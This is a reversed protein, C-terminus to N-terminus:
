NNNNRDNNDHAWENDKDLLAMALCYGHGFPHKPDNLMINISRENVMMTSNEIFDDSVGYKKKYYPLSEQHPGDVEIVLLNEGEHLRRKLEQFQREQKVLQCYVPVYIAKRGEIYNLMRDYHFPEDNDLPNATDYVAGICTGVKAKGVPYRVAEKTNFGKKRWAWYAPLLANTEANVHQEAPHEWVLTSDWRSYRQCSKPVSPYVKSFQWINEMVQGKDNQLVYPGLSGYPSSKTLVVIPTFGPFSPDKRKGETYTCRGVRILGTNNSKVLVETPSCITSSAADSTSGETDPSIKNKKTIGSCSRETTTEESRARKPPM